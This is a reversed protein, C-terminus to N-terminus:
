FRKPQRALRARDAGYPSSGFKTWMLAASGSVYGTLQRPLRVPLASGAVLAGCCHDVRNHIKGIM